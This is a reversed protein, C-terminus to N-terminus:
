TRIWRQKVNRCTKVLNIGEQELEVLIIREPEAVCKVM